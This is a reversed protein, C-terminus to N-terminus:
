PMRGWPGPALRGTFRECRFGVGTAAIQLVREGIDGPAELYDAGNGDSGFDRESRLGTFLVGVDGFAQPVAHDIRERRFDLAQAPELCSSLSAAAQSRAYPM